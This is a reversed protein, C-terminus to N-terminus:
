GVADEPWGIIAHDHQKLWINALMRSWRGNGNEFPHIQVARLHLNMAQELLGMTKNKSWHELDGLLSYLSTEIQEPPFGLNLPKKRLKGAWRWVRGFMERHLRLSWSYDFRALRASPKAAFYKVIVVRINDAEAANLEARTAITKIKLDSVDDIPTEGPILRGLSM